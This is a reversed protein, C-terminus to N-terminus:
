ERGSRAWPLPRARSHSRGAMLRRPSCRFPEERVSQRTHTCHLRPRKSISCRPAHASPRRPPRKLPHSSSWTAVDVRLARRDDPSHIPAHVGSGLRTYLGRAYGTFLGSHLVRRGALEATTVTDGAALCVGCLASRPSRLGVPTPPLWCFCPARRVLSLGERRRAFHVIKYLRLIFKWNEHESHSM